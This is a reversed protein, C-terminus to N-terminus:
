PAEGTDGPRLFDKFNARNVRVKVTQGQRGLSKAPAGNITMVVASGDGATLVVEDKAVLVEADGVDLLRSVTGKGDATAIVWIPATVSLVIKLPEELAPRATTVAAATSVATAEVKESPIEATKAPAPAPNGVKAAASRAKPALAAAPAESKTVKATPTPVQATAPAPPEAPREPPAARHGAPITQVAHEALHAPATEAVSQIASVWNPWRKPASFTVLGVLLAAVAGIAALRLGKTSRHITMPRSPKIEALKADTQPGYGENVSSDPFQAVFEAVIVEPDLSVATAFSRVFGRGLLGGPVYTIDDRELGELVPVSIKTCDAIQRLSLGRRERAKKLKAGVRAPSRKRTM